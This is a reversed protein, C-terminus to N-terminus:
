IRSITDDDSDLSGLRVASDLDQSDWHPAKHHGGRERWHRHQHTGSYVESGEEDDGENLVSHFGGHGCESANDALGLREAQPRDCSGRLWRKITDPLQSAHVRNRRSRRHRSIRGWRTSRPGMQKALLIRLREAWTVPAESGLCFTDHKSENTDHVLACDHPSQADLLEMKRCQECVLKRRIIPAFTCFAFLLMLSLIISALALSAMSVASLHGHDLLAPALTHERPAASQLAVPVPAAVLRSLLPPPPM